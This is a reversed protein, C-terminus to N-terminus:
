VDVDICSFVWLRTCLESDEVLANRLFVFLFKHIYEVLVM